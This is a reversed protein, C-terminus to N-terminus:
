IKYSYTYFKFNHLLSNHKPLMREAKAHLLQTYYLNITAYHNKLLVNAHLSVGQQMHDM